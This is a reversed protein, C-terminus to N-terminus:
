VRVKDQQKVIHAKGYAPCDQHNGGGSKFLGCSGLLLSCAIIIVGKRKM